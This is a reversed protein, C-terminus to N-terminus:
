SGVRSIDWRFNDLTWGSGSLVSYAIQVEDGAVLKVIGNIGLGAGNITFNDVGPFIPNTYDLDNVEVYFRVQNESGSNTDAVGSVNFQYTGTAPVTWVGNVFNPLATQGDVEFFAFNGSDITQFTGSLAIGNQVTVRGIVSLTTSIPNWQVGNGLVLIDLDTNYAVSGAEPTILNLEALTVRTPRFAGTKSPMEVSGDEFLRLESTKSTIGGTFLSIYPTADPNWDMGGLPSDGSDHLIYAPSDSPNRLRTRGFFVDLVGDSGDDITVNGTVENLTIKEGGTLTEIVVSADVEISKVVGDLATLGSTNGAQNGEVGSYTVLGNDVSLGSGIMATDELSELRNATDQVLKETGYGVVWESGNYMVDLVTDNAFESLNVGGIIDDNIINVIEGQGLKRNFLRCDYLCANLKNSGDGRAGLTFNFESQTNMSPTTDNNAVSMFAGDVLMRMSNTTPTDQTFAIHHFNGDFLNAANLTAFSYSRFAGNITMNFINSVGNFEMRWEQGPSNDSGWYVLTETGTPEGANAKYWCTFTRPTSGLIGKYNTADAQLHATGEFDFVDVSNGNVVDTVFSGGTGNNVLERDGFRDDFDATLTWEGQVNAEAIPPPPNLPYTPNVTELSITNTNDGIWLLKREGVRPNDGLAITMDGAASDIYIRKEGYGLLASTAALQFNDPRLTLVGAGNTALVDGDLEDAVPYELPDGDKFSSNGAVISGTGNPALTLDQNPSIRSVVGNLASVDSGSNATKGSTGAFRVIEGDVSSAAGFMDGGGSVGGFGASSLSTGFKVGGLLQAQLPDSLDTANSVVAIREILNSGQQLVEPLDPIDTPANLIAESLTAYVTQGYLVAIESGGSIAQYIHVITAQQTPTGIAVKAGTGNDWFGPDILTTAPNEQDNTIGLIRAFNAPSQAPFSVTNQGRELSAVGAGVGHLIGASRNFTLDLNPSVELGSKRTVGLADYGDIVQGYVEQGKFTNNILASITGEPHSIIALNGYDRSTTPTSIEDIFVVVGNVDIVLKQAVATGINPVTVGLQEAWPIVAETKVGQADFTVHRWEGAPVDVSTPSAITPVGDLRIVSSSAMEPAVDREDLMQYPTIDQSDVARWPNTGDGLVDISQDAAVNVTLPFGVLEALPSILDFFQEGAAFTLGTGNEFDNRTPIYKVVEGTVDSVVEVRFNDIPNVLKIYVRSIDQSKTPVVQYSTVGVMTQSDDAQVVDHVVEAARSEYLPKQTGTEDVQYDVSIFDRDTVSSSNQLFGGRDSLTVGPGVEVSSSETIVTKCKLDKAGFDVMTATNIDGTGQYGNATDYHLMEGDQLVPINPNENMDINLFVIGTNGKVKVVGVRQDIGEPEAFFFGNNGLSVIQGVNFFSTDTTLDGQHVIDVTEGALGGAVTAGICPFKGAVSANAIGVTSVGGVQDANTYYVLVGANTDEALIAKSQISPPTPATGGGSSGGKGIKTWSM